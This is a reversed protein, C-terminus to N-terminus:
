APVRWSKRMGSGFAYYGGTEAGTSITVEKPPPPPMFHKALFFAAVVLLVAPGLTLLLERGQAISPNALFARQKKGVDKLMPKLM